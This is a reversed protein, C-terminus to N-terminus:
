QIFEPGRAGSRLLVRLAEERNRVILRNPCFYDMYLTAQYENAVRPRIETWQANKAEIWKGDRGVAYIRKQAPNCRIGEYSASVAGGAAKVVVAYRVIEDNGILLSQKDVFYRHSGAPGAAFELLDREQPYPPLNVANEPPPKLLDDSLFPVHPRNDSGCGFLAASFWVVVIRM